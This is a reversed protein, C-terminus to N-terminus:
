TGRVKTPRATASHARDRQDPVLAIGPHDVDPAPLARALVIVRARYLAIMDIVEAMSETVIYKAGDVMVISTDPVSQIREILDPNLAFRINNLKTVIIM